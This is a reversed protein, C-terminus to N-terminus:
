AAELFDKVSNFNQHLRRELLFVIKARLGDDGYSPFLPPYEFFHPVIRLIWACCSAHCLFYSINNLSAFPVHMLM